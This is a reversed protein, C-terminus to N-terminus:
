LTWPPIWKPYNHSFEKRLNVEASPGCLARFYRSRFAGHTIVHRLFRKRFHAYTWDGVHQYELRVNQAYEGYVLGPQGLISMDLDLFLELTNRRRPDNQLDAPIPERHTSLEILRVIEAIVDAGITGKGPGGGAGGLVRECVRASQFENDRKKFDYVLDHFWIATEVKLRETDELQSAPIQDLEWLVHQLHRLGHYARQPDGYAVLLSEVENALDSSSAPGIQWVERLRILNQTLRNALTERTKEGFGHPGIRRWLVFQRNDTCTSAQISKEFDFDPFKAFWDFLGEAESPGIRWSQSGAFIFHHLDDEFPGRDNTVAVICDVQGPGLGLFSRESGSQSGSFSPAEDGSSEM